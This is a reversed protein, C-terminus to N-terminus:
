HVAASVLQGGPQVHVVLTMVSQCSHSVQHVAASVQQGGPHVPVVGTM